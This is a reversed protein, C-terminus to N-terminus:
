VLRNFFSKTNPVRSSKRRNRKEPSITKNKVDQSNIFKPTYKISARM